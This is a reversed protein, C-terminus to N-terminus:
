SDIWNIKRERAVLRFYDHQGSVNIKRFTQLLPRTTVHIFHQASDVTQLMDSYVVNEFSSSNGNDSIPTPTSVLEKLPGSQTSDTEGKCM